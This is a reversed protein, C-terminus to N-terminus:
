AGVENEEADSHRSKADCGSKPGAGKASEKAHPKFYLMHTEIYVCCTDSGFAM